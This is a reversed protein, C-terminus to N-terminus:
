SYTASVFLNGPVEPQIKSGSEERNSLVSEALSRVCPGPSVVERDGVGDDSCEAGELALDLGELVIEVRAAVVNERFLVPLGHGDVMEIFRVLSPCLASRGVRERGDTSTAVADREVNRLEVLEVTGGRVAAPHARVVKHFGAEIVELGAIRVEGSLEEGFIVVAYGWCLHQGTGGGFVVPSALSGSVPERGCWVVPDMSFCGARHAQVPQEMGSLVVDSGSSRGECFFPVGGEVGKPGLRHGYATRFTSPPPAMIAVHPFRFDFGPNLTVSARLAARSLQVSDAEGGSVGVGSGLPVVFPVTKPCRFINGRVRMIGVSPCAGFFLVPVHLSDVSPRGAGSTGEASSALREESLCVDGGLVREDDDIPGPVFIAFDVWPFNKRAGCFVPPFARLAVLLEM